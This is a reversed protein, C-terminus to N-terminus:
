RVPKRRTNIPKSRTKGRGACEPCGCKQDGTRSYIVAQWEHGDACQWWVKKHSGATVMQPTLGHNREPHWQAAVQPATTALDNFGPLVRRNSCYPCGATLSVRNNIVACYSHGQPCLWWVKRNSYPTVAEPTLTGNREPHWEEAVMPAISALDNEGPIVTKGTCVPCGAGADTRSQVRAQWLHGRGCRWWVKRHSAYSVDRPSLAGNEATDWEALLGPVQRADCYEQLSIRGM